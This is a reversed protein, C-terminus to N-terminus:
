RRTAMGTSCRTDRRTRPWAWRPSPIPAFTSDSLRLVNHTPDYHDSLRGHVQEITVDQLGENDLLMRAMQAASLGARAPVRSYRNFASSVRAQAIMAVILPILVLIYTPDFYFPYFMVKAGKLPKTTNM